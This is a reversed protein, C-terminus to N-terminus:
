FLPSRDKFNAIRVFASFFQFCHFENTQEDGADCCHQLFVDNRIDEGHSLAANIFGLGEIGAFDEFVLIDIEEMWNRVMLRAVDNEVVLKTITADDFRYQNFASTM